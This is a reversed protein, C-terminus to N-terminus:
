STPTSGGSAVGVQAPRLLRDSITFGETMLQIVCGPEVGPVPAEFMAQHLKPDFKDGMQPAIPEIKYKAFANLLEKQTLEIGEIVPGATERQEDTIAEVARKMNDFVPLLERALKSGGYAEADRRDREARKRVNELEAFARLLRDQLENKEAILTAIESAEDDGFELEEPLEAADAETPGLEVDIEDKEDSM